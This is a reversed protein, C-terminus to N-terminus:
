QYHILRKETRKSNTRNDRGKNRFAYKGQGPYVIGALRSEDVDVHGKKSGMNDRLIALRSEKNFRLASELEGYLQQFSFVHTAIRSM